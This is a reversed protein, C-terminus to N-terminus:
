RVFGCASCGEAWRVTSGVNGWDTGLAADRATSRALDTGVGIRTATVAASGVVFGAVISREATSEATGGEVGGVDGVVTVALSSHPVVTCDSCSASQGTLQSAVELLDASQSALM